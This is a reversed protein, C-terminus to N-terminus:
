KSGNFPTTFDGSIPKDILAARIIPESPKPKPIAQRAGVAEMFTVFAMTNAAAGVLKVRVPGSFKFNNLSFAGGGYVLDTDGLICNICAVGDLFFLSHAQLDFNEFSQTLGPVPPIGTQANIFLGPGSISPPKPEQAFASTHSGFLSVLLFATCAGVIFSGLALTVKNM